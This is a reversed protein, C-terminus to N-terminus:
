KLQKILYEVRREWITKIQEANILPCPDPSPKGNLFDYFAESWVDDMVTYFDHEDKVIMKEM